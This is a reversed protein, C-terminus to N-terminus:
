SFTAALPIEKLNLSPQCTYTRFAQQKGVNRAYLRCSGSCKELCPQLAYLCYSFSRNVLEDICQKAARRPFTLTLVNDSFDLNINTMSELIKFMILTWNQKMRTQLSRIMRFSALAFNVHLLLEHTILILGIKKM